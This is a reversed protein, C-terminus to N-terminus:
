RTTPNNSDSDLWVEYERRASEDRMFENYEDDPRMLEPEHRLRSGGREEDPSM